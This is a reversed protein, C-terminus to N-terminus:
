PAAASPVAHSRDRHVEARNSPSGMNRDIVVATNMTAAANAM